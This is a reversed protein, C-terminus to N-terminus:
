SLINALSVSELMKLERIIPELITNIGYDSIYKTRVIALLWIGQLRSRLAPEINKLTFYFLGLISVMDNYILPTM